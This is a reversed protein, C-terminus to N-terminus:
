DVTLAPAHLLYAVHLRLCGWIFRAPDVLHSLVTAPNTALQLANNVLRLADAIVRTAAEALTERPYTIPQGNLMLLFSYTDALDLGHQHCYTAVQEEVLTNM